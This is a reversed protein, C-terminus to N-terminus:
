LNYFFIIIEFTGVANLLLNEVGECNDCIERYGFELLMDRESPQPPGFAVEATFDHLAFM